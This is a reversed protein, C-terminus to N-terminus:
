LSAYAITKLFVMHTTEPYSGYISNDKQFIQIFNRPLSDPTHMYSCILNIKHRGKDFKSLNRSLASTDKWRRIDVAYQQLSVPYRTSRLFIDVKIFIM